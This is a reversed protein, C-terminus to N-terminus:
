FKKRYLWHSVIYLMRDQGKQDHENHVIAYPEIAELETESRHRRQAKTMDDRERGELKIVIGGVRTIWEAEVTFRVDPVVFREIDGRRRLVNVWALLFRAWVDEGHLPKMEDTGYKQMRSRALSSRHQGYLKDLGYGELVHLNIKLQDALALPFFDMQEQLLKAMFDKGSGAKGAIGVIKM